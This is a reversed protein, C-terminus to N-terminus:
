GNAIVEAQELQVRMALLELWREPEGTPARGAATASRRALKQITALSQPGVRGYHEFAVPSFNGVVRKRRELWAPYTGRKRGEAKEAYGAAVITVDIYLVPWGPVYVALDPEGPEGGDGPWCPTQPLWEVDCGPIEMCLLQLLRCVRDHRRRTLGGYPCLLTHWTRAVGTELGEPCRPHISRPDTARRACPEQRGVPLGLRLRVAATAEEDTARTSLVQVLARKAPPDPSSAADLEAGTSGTGARLRLWGAGPGACSDLRRRDHDDGADWLEDERCEDIARSARKAWHPEGAWEPVAAYGARSLHEAAEWCERELATGGGAASQLFARGTLARVAPAVLEASGVFSAELKDAVSRVGM